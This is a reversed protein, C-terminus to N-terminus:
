LLKLNASYLSSLNLCVSFSQSLLLLSPLIGPFRLPCVSLLPVSSVHPCHPLVTSCPQLSCHGWHCDFSWRCDPPFLTYDWSIPSPFEAPSVLCLQLDQHSVYDLCSCFCWTICHPSLTFTMAWVRVLAVIPTMEHVTVFAGALTFLLCCICEALHYSM